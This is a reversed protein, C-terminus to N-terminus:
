DFFNQLYKDIERQDLDYFYKNEDHLRQALAKGVFRWHWPEFKYYSNNPPYSLIFGYLYANSTLWTYAKTKDMTDFSAGLEPTTFDVATGLQHESYGQDASFSNATNTGYTVKYTTKLDVQTDFSRYGSIIALPTGNGNATDMLNKLFPWVDSRFYQEKQNFIYSPDVVALKEPLYNENLFFVKSYKELLEPDTKSLKVLTGVDGVIGNVQGTLADVMVKQNSLEAALSDRELTTSALNLSTSALSEELLTNKDKSTLVDSELASNQRNLGYSVYGLGLAGLVGLLALAFLVINIKGSFVPPKEM